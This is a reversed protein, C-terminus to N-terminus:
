DSSHMYGSTSRTHTSGVYACGILPLCVDQDIEQGGAEQWMGGAWMGGALCMQQLHILYVYTLCSSYVSNKVKLTCKEQKTRVLYLHFFTPIVNKGM